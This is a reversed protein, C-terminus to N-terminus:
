SNRQVSRGIADLLARLTVPKSIHADFGAEIARAIDQERGFGTLAIAPVRVTRPSKRLQAILEYGSMEPM